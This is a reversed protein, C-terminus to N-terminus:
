VVVVREKLLREVFLHDIRGADVIGNGAHKADLELQSQEFVRVDIRIGGFGQVVRRFVAFDSAAHGAFGEHQELVVVLGQGERRLEFGDRQDAM